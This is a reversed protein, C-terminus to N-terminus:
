KAEALLLEVQLKAVSPLLLSEIKGLAQRRDEM